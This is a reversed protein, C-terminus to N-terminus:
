CQQSFNIYCQMQVYLIELGTGNLVSFYIKM